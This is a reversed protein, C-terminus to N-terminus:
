DKHNQTVLCSYSMEKQKNLDENVNKPLTEYTEGYFDHM